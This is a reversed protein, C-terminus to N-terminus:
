VYRGFMYGVITIFVLGMCASVLLLLIALLEAKIMLNLKKNINDLDM